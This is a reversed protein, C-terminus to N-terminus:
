RKGSQKQAPAVQPRAVEFLDYIVKIPEKGRYNPKSTYRKKVQNNNRKVIWKPHKIIYELRGIRKEIIGEKWGLKEKKYENFYIKQGLKFM